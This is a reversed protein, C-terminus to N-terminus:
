IKIFINVIAKFAKSLISSVHSEQLLMTELSARLPDIQRSYTLMIGKHEEAWNSKTAKRLTSSIKRFSSQLDNFVGLVHGEGYIIAIKVKPLSNNLLATLKKNADRYDRYEDDDLKEKMNTYLIDRLVHLVQLNKYIDDCYAVVEVLVEARLKIQASIYLYLINLITALLAGLFGSLLIDV